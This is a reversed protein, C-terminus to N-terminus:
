FFNRLLLEYRQEFSDKKTLYSPYIEVEVTLCMHFFIFLKRFKISDKISIYPFFPAINILEFIFNFIM